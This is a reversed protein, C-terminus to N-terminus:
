ATGSPSNNGLEVGQQQRNRFAILATLDYTVNGAIPIRSAIEGAVRDLREADIEGTTENIAAVDTIVVANGYFAEDGKVGRARAGLFQGTAWPGLVEKVVNDLKTADKINPTRAQKIRDAM